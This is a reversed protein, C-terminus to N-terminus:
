RKAEQWSLLSPRSDRLGRPKVWVRLLPLFHESRWPGGLVASCSGKEEWGWPSPPAKESRPHSSGRLFLHSKGCGCFRASTLHIPQLCQTILARVNWALGPALRFAPAAQLAQLSVDPAEPWLPPAQPLPLARGVEWWLGCQVEASFDAPM